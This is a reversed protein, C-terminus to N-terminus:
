EVASASQSPSSSCSAQDAIQLAIRLALPIVALRDLYPRYKLPVKVPEGNETEQPPGAYLAWVRELVDEMSEGTNAAELRIAKHISPSAKLSKLVKNDKNETEEAM